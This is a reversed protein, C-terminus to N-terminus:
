VVAVTITSGKPARSGPGPSQRVVLGLGIYYQTKVVNVAFGAAELRDTASSASMRQVEPVDVLVPGKSVVLHVTDGRRLKGSDPSQSIVGGRDVTDSNERSQDAKLHLKKLTKVADRSDKGTVDPVKVPHPGKSVVVDVAADRRLSTGTAPDARLVVDKAIKNDYVYKADGYSLHADAIAAQAADLSMGRLAPVKHREPGRSVTATVTGDRTVNDGGAPDTRMVLGARVTESYDRGGVAFTLGAADVKAEAARPTLSVVGPTSVFRGAGFWWGGVRAAVALLLVVVLLVPGRRSRRPRPAPQPGRASPPAPHKPPRAGLVDTDDTADELLRPDDADTRGATAVQAASVIPRVQEDHYDIDEPDRALRQVPVTPTLDDTLEPDDLVGHDLAARVRRVQHLLVRADAPRLDRDRATARAVLADVYAPIGPVTDSPAPVDEHVHKYAVQIPSEGEHPKRGTLMEYLVVGAAYVDSRADARGDAVLEPSLYSVTGILVGGTATHQTEATVARALGFDAVKVRGDDALLVNEPKVDRHIMGAHHAAALASLVPDILALAKAAPMPAEKRIMDRLTHGPIYEMALFLTGNDDGQDFVAVVNPHSLRAASRAERVFRGAFDDDDGLGAHMVKLACVRDLRLDVAEYVTAMGGRAVRAGVRYRGDLVRGIL